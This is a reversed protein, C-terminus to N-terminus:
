RRMQFITAKNAYKLVGGGCKRFYKNDRIYTIFLQLRRQTSHNYEDDEIWQQITISKSVKNNKYINEFRLAYEILVSVTDDNQRLNQTFAGCLEEFLIPGLHPVRRISKINYDIYNNSFFMADM